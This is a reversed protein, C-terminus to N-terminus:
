SNNIIAYLSFIGLIPATTLFVYVINFLRDYFLNSNWNGATDKPARHLGKKFLLYLPRYLAISYLPLIFGLYMINLGFGALALVIGIVAVGSSIKLLVLWSKKNDLLQRFFMFILLAALSIFIIIYGEITM